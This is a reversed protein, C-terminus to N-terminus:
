AIKMRRPEGRALSEAFRVAQKAEVKAPMPPEYPDVVAEVLVPGPLSLAEDLIDGCLAPDTVTIGTAGCARAYAAFDIPHLECGFEPNGLFVMQEWKIQGLTNNKIMVVKIPLEYKVATAFDAMLMSFGGDGVFAVCQRDPYAIQAAITYPLGPAMSALTGSLSYMQGQRAPIHRAFWTTITGSDCSVIANSSLRKGLEWAVLQPKMPKDRRSAREEMIKWWEKAGEQAKKLFSRDQKRKLLPMLIQLARKSDGILGVDVPFRLG